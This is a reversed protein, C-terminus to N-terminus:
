INANQKNTKNGSFKALTLYVCACRSVCIYGFIMQLYKQTAAKKM